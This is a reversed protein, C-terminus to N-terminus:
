VLLVQIDMVNTGTLGTVVHDRGNLFNSYFTYSDNNDIFEQASLGHKTAENVQSPTALAGAAPTPGDQGDTGASLFVVGDEKSFIQQAQQMLLASSLVMEQNRGGKGTGKITVTTEGAGIVCLPKQAGKIQNIVNESTLDKDAVPSNGPIPNGTLAISALNAFSKGVEGAEGELTTSAIIPTYGLNAAEAAAAKVAIRNTGVLVNHVNAFERNNQSEPKPQDAMGQLYQMVSKPVKEEAKLKRFIELCDRPNSQDPVTPGSAIIDLPDGIVDSLILTVVKAPYALQALKGGKLKSLNKRVTNLDVITGGSSAVAKITKLKEQLTIADIPSPLLASGGGSILVLLIDNETVQTAINQIQTAAYQARDDPLNHKAGEIIHIPSGPRLLTSKIFDENGSEKIADQLGCPISAVGRIINHGLVDEVARAMGLVAKGFAVVYVNKYVMYESGQVRLRTKSLSLANKVMEQPTVAKLASRFIGIADSRLNPSHFLRRSSHFFRIQRYM